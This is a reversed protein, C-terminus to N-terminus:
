EGYVSRIIEEFEPLDNPDIFGESSGRWWALTGELPFGNDKFGQAIRRANERDADSVVGGAILELLEDPLNGLNNPKQADM